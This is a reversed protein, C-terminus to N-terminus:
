IKEAVRLKASHSRKNNALEEETALIPKRNVLKLPPKLDDPIVPLGRPLDVESYKKFLQKVIRDEDSQFTIVSIRGGPKLLKIAAELSESLVGLENNVAIRIAQFSKKAPHGGTRRAYAPIAAKILDSLQFTTEIPAIARAKEIQRAIQKAFKEDGYRYLIRVLENFDWENVIEYASLRQDRDMRMDLKADFRYSFGREPQDFQPSSVGLDYYIGDVGDIGLKALEPALQSFNAKVLQLHPQHDERLNTQFKEQAASIAYSDQDFGIVTGNTLKSLLYAAHGGGGFTCDVYIGGDKPALNDITEHLLVSTHEFETM